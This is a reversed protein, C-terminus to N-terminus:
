LILLARRTPEISTSPLAQIAGIVPAWDPRIPFRPANESQGPGDVSFTAMGRRLFDNEMAFLEEKSSDLGPVMLVLAPRSVDRPRRLNGPIAAGEFPVEIREGPPDLHPLALRRCAALGPSAAM